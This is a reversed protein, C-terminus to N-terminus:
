SRAAPPVGASSSYIEPNWCNPPQRGEVVAVINDVVVNAMAARLETVASGVHPTVVVNPMKLLEAHPRPEHEFVDLGAGAIRKQSLARVLAQEDVLPGRASNIFYATRKMLGFEREGILHRTEPTLRAHLSILDSEALLQDFPVWMIGLAKEEAASLRKPDFYLVRMSFGRAREASARGVGGMGIIGLTKSSIGGGEMYPSQSGPFTGSRMLRDGEVVRRSVSLMLAWALDATADNLLAAPIVTVPIGRASAAQIDIDAPTITMSAIARLNPNASIVAADVHDQLLCFLVDCERVAATLEDPTLIHLPDRNWEVEAISQLREIASAHVPQTIFVCLRKDGAM